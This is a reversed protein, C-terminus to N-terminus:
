PHGGGGGGGGGARGGGGGGAAGPRAAGGGGPRRERSVGMLVTGTATRPAPWAPRATLRRSVPDPISCTTRSPPRGASVQRARGHSGSRRSVGLQILRSGPQDYVPSSSYPNM